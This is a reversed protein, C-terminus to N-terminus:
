LGLTDFVCLTLPTVIDFAFGTLSLFRLDQAFNHGNTPVHDGDELLCSLEIPVTAKM